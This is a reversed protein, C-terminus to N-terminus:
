KDQPPEPCGAEVWQRLEKSRWRVAGGIKVPRLLKGTRLLRWVSRTSLGLITAVERVTILLPEPEKPPPISDSM